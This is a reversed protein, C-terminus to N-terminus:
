GACRIVLGPRIKPEFWTAKAPMLQGADVVNMLQQSSIPYLAFAIQWGGQRCEHELEQTNKLGGIFEIDQDIVLRRVKFFPRLLLEDLISIDLSEVPNNQRTAIFKEQLHLSYWTGDLLMGLEHVQKPEAQTARDVRKVRFSRKVVNLFAYTSIGSLSKLLRNYAFIAISTDSFLAALIHHYFPNHPEKKFLQKASASRHHGDAVYLTPLSAFSHALQAIITHDNIVWMQHAVGDETVIQQAPEHAAIVEIITDIIPDNKYTLVIPDIQAQQIKTFMTVARKKASIIKEHPKILGDRYNQLALEGIIGYMKKGDKEQCYLYYAPQAEQQVMGAKILAELYTKGKSAATSTYLESEPSLNIDPRIVHIFNEPHTRAFEHAYIPNMSNYPPCTFSKISEPTPRWGQFPRFDITSNHTNARTSVWFEPAFCLLFLLFISEKKKLM